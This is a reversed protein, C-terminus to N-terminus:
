LIIAYLVVPECHTYAWVDIASLRDMWRDAMQWGRM